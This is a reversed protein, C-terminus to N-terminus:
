MWVRLRKRVWPWRKQTAELPWSLCCPDLHPTWWLRLPLPQRAFCQPPTSPVLLRLQAPSSWSHVLFVFTSLKISMHENQVDSKTKEYQGNGGAAWSWTSCRGGLVQRWWQAPGCVEDRGYSDQPPGCCQWACEGPHVVGLQGSPPLSHTSQYFSTPHATLLLYLDKNIDTVERKKKFAAEIVADVASDIDASEFIIFPCTAGVCASVSVPIGMGATAKCLAAGDQLLPPFVATSSICLYTRWTNNLLVLIEVGVAKNGGYTLYSINPSQAVKAGLSVGSGTLVNLAGAPLGAGTFLQALLLAPPGSKQGPVVIVSNGALRCYDIIVWLLVFDSIWYPLKILTISIQLNTIPLNGSGGLHGM